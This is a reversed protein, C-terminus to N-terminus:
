RGAGSLWEQLRQLGEELSVEPVYGFDRRAASIDFWHATSLESAVFRTMPPEGAVNFTRWIGECVKGALSAFGPSITRKVPEVRAAALIRNVMEWLPIPEDNTIFYAKGDVASGPALRDAALLHASAANDVYVTDVLCPRNGIRRLKGARGKAVIRPVLHNDGPGWILHPRLAVVALEASRSSLVLQEALAKTHPYPAKFTAPYPLSENGGEVDTGDFVVSPSSTYVLRGIGEKKCAAVVNETGTVNARYYEDFEGWIGAKAAVHFVVDCGRAARAVADADSIDGRVQEAGITALEPYDGRSFSRVADGRAVLQRVIANGLFGGGGTVLAKM